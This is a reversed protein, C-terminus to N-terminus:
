SLQVYPRGHRCSEGCVFCLSYLQFDLITLLRPTCPARPPESPSTRCSHESAARASFQLWAGMGHETRKFFVGKGNVNHQLRLATCTSYMRRAGRSRTRRAPVVCSYEARFGYYNQPVCRTARTHSARVSYSHCSHSQNTSIQLHPWPRPADGEITRVCGTCPAAVDFTCLQLDTDLAM